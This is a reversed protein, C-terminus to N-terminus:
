GHITGKGNNDLFGIGAPPKISNDGRV